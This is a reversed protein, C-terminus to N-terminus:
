SEKIFYLTSSDKTTIANYDAETGVWLKNGTNSKSDLWKDSTSSLNSAVTNGDGVLIRSTKKDYVPQGDAIKDTTENSKSSIDNVRLIKIRPQTQSM